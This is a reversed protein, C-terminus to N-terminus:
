RAPTEIPACNHRGAMLCDEIRGHERLAGFLFYGAAVLALVLILGAVAARRSPPEGESDGERTPEAM